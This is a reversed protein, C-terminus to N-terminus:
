QIMCQELSGNPRFQPTDLGVVMALAMNVNGSIGFCPCEVDNLVSKVVQM